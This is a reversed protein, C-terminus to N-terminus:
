QVPQINDASRATFRLPAEPGDGPLIQGGMNGSALLGDTNEGGNGEVVISLESGRGDNDLIRTNRAGPLLESYGGCCRHTVRVGEGAASAGVEKPFVITNREVVTDDASLVLIGIMPFVDLDRPVLGEVVNEVVRNHEPRNALAGSGGALALGSQAVQVVIGIGGACAGTCDLLSLQRIQNHAILWRDGGTNTIAQVTGFFEDHDVVVDNAFRGLVGLALPATDDNSIRRGDFAFGAIRVSGPGSNGRGGEILFGVRLGNGLVPGDPCGVIVPGNQGLLRVPKQVRAGCYVGSAVRVTDGARAANVAGQITSYEAPVHLVAAQLPAATLALATLLLCSQLSLTPM